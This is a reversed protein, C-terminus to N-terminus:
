TLTGNTFYSYAIMIVISSSAASEANTQDATNEAKCQYRLANLDRDNLSLKM